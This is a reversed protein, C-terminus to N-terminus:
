RLRAISWLRVAQVCVEKDLCLVLESDPLNACILSPMGTDYALVALTAYNVYNEVINDQVIERIFAADLTANSM